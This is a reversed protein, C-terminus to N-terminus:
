RIIKSSCCEGRGSIAVGGGGCGDDDLDGFESKFMEWAQQDACHADFLTIIEKPMFGKDMFLAFLSCYHGCVTTTV